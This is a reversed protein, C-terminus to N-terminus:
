GNIVEGGNIHIVQGSIYTAEDSALYVYAYAVEVPEGARGLPTDTGFSAVHEPSFTSPILPTWIPGPAVANVRIKKPAFYGSLARTFSVIAGKTASYDILAKHGRYAVVSATNIICSGPTLHKEAAKVLYFQSFINVEFTRHLQAITIDAMKKQPFQVAANNIVVDIKGYSEMTKDIIAACIDPDAVDGRYLVCQGGYNEIIDRTKNADKDDELYNILVKAGEKVFAIAIARGIGSDGGTIIAVKGELRNKIKEKEYVPQPVMQDEQGKDKKIQQPPRAKKKTGNGKQM